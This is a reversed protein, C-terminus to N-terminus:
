LYGFQELTEGAIEEFDRLQSMSLDTKWRGIKSADIPEAVREASLHGMTNKYITLDHEQHALMQSHFPLGAVECMHQITQKSDTVLAEYSICHGNVEPRNSWKLFKAHNTVYGNAVEAVTKNFSGTTLQSALVDRGDRVINFFVADPWSALYRAFATSCKMGWTRKREKCMKKKACDGIFEMVHHPATFPHQITSMFSEFDTGFQDQNLGSPYCRAVFTKLKNRQGKYSRKMKTESNLIQELFKLETDDNLVSALLNPYLEYSMSVDPHADWITVLLTGGSRSLGRIFVPGSM